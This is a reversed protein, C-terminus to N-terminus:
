SVPDQGKRLAAIMELLRLAERKIAARTYLSEGLGATDWGYRIVRAEWNKAVALDM